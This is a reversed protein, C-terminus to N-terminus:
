VGVSSLFDTQLAALREEDFSGFVSFVSSVAGEIWLKQSQLPSLGRSALYFAFSPDLKDIKAAHTAHVQDCAVDLRPVLSIEAHDGLLLVSQRL